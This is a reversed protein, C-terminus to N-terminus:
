EDFRYYNLSDQYHGKSSKNIGQNINNAIGWTKPQFPLMNKSLCKKGVANNVKKYQPRSKSSQKLFAVVDM